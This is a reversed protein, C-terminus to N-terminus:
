AAAALSARATWSWRSGLRLNVVLVLQQGVCWPQRAHELDVRDLSPAVSGFRQTEDVVHREARVATRPPSRRPDAPEPLDRVQLLGRRRPDPRPPDDDLSSLCGRTIWLTGHVHRDRSAAAAARQPSHVVGVGPRLDHVVVPDVPLQHQVLVSPERREEAGSGPRPQELPRQADFPPDRRRHTSELEEELTDVSDEPEVQRGPFYDLRDVDTCCRHQSVAFAHDSAQDLGIPDGEELARRQAHRGVDGLPHCAIGPVPHSSDGVAAPVASPLDQGLEHGPEVVEVEQAVQRRPHTPPQDLGEVGVQARVLDACAAITVLVVGREHESGEGTLDIHLSFAVAVARALPAM